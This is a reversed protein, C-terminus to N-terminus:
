ILEYLLDYTIRNICSNCVVNNSDELATVEPTGKHHQPEINELDKDNSAVLEVIDSNDAAIRGSRSQIRSELASIAPSYKSHPRVFDVLTQSLQKVLGRKIHKNRFEKVPIEICFTGGGNGGHDLDNDDDSHQDSRESQYYLHGKHLETLRRAIWLGLGKVEHTQLVGATFMLGNEFIATRQEQSLGPGGDKVSFLIFYQFDHRKIIEVKISVHQGEPTCDIANSTLYRIVQGLKEEEGEICVTNMEHGDLQGEPLILDLVVGKERAQSKLTTMKNELFSFILINKFKIAFSAESLREYVLLDNLIDVASQCSGQIEDLLLMDDEGENNNLKMTSKDSELKARIYRVNFVTLIVTYATLVHTQLIISMSVCELGTVPPYILGVGFILSLAIIFVILNLTCYKDDPTQKINAKLKLRINNFWIISLCFFIGAAIGQISKRIIYLNVDVAPSIFPTFAAMIQGIYMMIQLPIIRSLKWISPGYANLIYSGSTFLMSLKVATTSPWYKLSLDSAICLVAINIILNSFYLMCIAIRAPHLVHDRAAFLDFIYDLMMPITTGISLIVSFHFMRSSLSVSLPISEMSTYDRPDIQLGMFVPLYNLIVGVFLLTYCCFIVAVNHGVFIKAM